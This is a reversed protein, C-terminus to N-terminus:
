EDGNGHRLMREELPRFQRKVRRQLSDLAESSSPGHAEFILESGFVAALTLLDLISKADAPSRRLFCSHRLSLAACARQAGNCAALAPWSREDFVRPSYPQRQIDPDAQDGDGDVKVQM